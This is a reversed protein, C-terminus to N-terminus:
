RIQQAKQLCTPSAEGRYKTETEGRATCRTAFAVKCFVRDKLDPCHTPLSEDSGYSSSEEHRGFPFHIGSRPAQRAMAVDCAAVCDAGFPRSSGEQRSMPFGRLGRLSRAAPITGGLPYGGQAQLSNQLKEKHM